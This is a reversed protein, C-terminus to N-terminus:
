EREGEEEWRWKGESWERREGVGVMGERGGWYGLQWCIVDLEM